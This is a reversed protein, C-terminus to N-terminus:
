NAEDADASLTMSLTQAYALARDLLLHVPPSFVFGRFAATSLEMFPAALDEGDKAHEIGARIREFFAEQDVSGEERTLTCLVEFIPMLEDRALTAADQM